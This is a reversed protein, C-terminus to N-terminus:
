EAASEINEIISEIGDFAEDLYGIAADMMEGRESSQIGEPLNEYAEQEEDRIAALEEGLETLRDVISQLAKRREKNM